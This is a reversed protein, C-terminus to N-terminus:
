QADFHTDVFAGLYGLHRKPDAALALIVERIFPPDFPSRRVETLPLWVVEIQNRDPKPGNAPIYAQELTATFVCEIRDVIDGTDSRTRFDAVGVLQPNQVSSGIEERCERQLAEPLTEFDAKAGGPLGFYDGLNPQKMRQVLVNDDRLIVVRAVARQYASQKDPQVFM